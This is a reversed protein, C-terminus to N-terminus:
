IARILKKVNSQTKIVGTLFFSFGLYESGGFVAKFIFLPDVNLVGHGKLVFYTIFSSTSVILLASAYLTSADDIDDQIKPKFYYLLHIRNVDKPFKALCEIPEGNNIQLKHAKYDQSSKLLLRLSPIHWILKGFFLLLLALVMGSYFIFNLITNEM